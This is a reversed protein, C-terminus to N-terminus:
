SDLNRVGSQWEQQDAWHWSSGRERHLCSLLIYYVLGLGRGWGACADQLCWCFTKLVM